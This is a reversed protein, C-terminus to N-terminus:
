DLSIARGEESSRYIADIVKQVALGEDVTNRQPTTESGIHDIFYRQEAKHTDSARTEIEADTLHDRGAKSDEYITLEHSSRHIEGRGRDGPPRVRRQHTPQSGV